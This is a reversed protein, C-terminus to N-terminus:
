CCCLGVCVPRVVYLVLVVLSCGCVSVRFVVMFCVHLVCLLVARDCMYCCGAFLCRDVCVAYVIDCVHKLFVGCVVHVAYPVYLWEDHCCRFPACVYAFLRLMCVCLHARMLLWVIRLVFLRVVYVGVTYLCLCM